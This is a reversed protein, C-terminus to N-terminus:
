DGLRWFGLRPDQITSGHFLFIPALNPCRLELFIDLAILGKYGYGVKDRHHEIENEITSLLPRKPSRTLLERHRTLYTLLGSRVQASASGPRLWSSCLRRSTVHVQHNPSTSIGALFCINCASAFRMVASNNKLKKWGTQWVTGHCACRYDCDAM